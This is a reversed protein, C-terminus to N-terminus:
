YLNIIEKDRLKKLKKDEVINQPDTSIEFLKECFSDVRKPLVQGLTSFVNGIIMQTKSKRTKQSQVYNHEVKITEEVLKKGKENLDYIAPYFDLLVDYYKGNKRARIFPKNEADCEYWHRCETKSSNTKIFNM